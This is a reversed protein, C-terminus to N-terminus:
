YPPPTPKKKKDKSNAQVAPQFGGRARPQSNAVVNPRVQNGGRYASQQYNPRTAYTRQQYAAQSPRVTNPRYNNVTYNNVTRRNEYQANRDYDRHRNYGGGGVYRNRVVTRDYVVYNGGRSYYYTGGRVILPGGYYHSYPRGSVYYIDVDGGGGGYYAPRDDYAVGVEDCGTFFLSGAGAVALLALTRLPAFM